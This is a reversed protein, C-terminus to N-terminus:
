WWLAAVVMHLGQGRQTLVYELHKSGDAAQITALAGDAVLSRLRKTLLNKAIGLRRQFADFRRTGAFAESVILLSWRDGVVKLAREISCPLGLRKV